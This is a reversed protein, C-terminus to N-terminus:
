KVRELPVTVFVQFTSQQPDVVAVIQLFHGLVETGLPLAVLGLNPLEFLRIDPKLTSGSSFWVMLMEIGANGKNFPTQGIFFQKRRQGKTTRM